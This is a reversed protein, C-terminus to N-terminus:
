LWQPTSGRYTIVFLLDDISGDSFLKRTTDDQPFQVEWTGFPAAGLMRQWATGSGSRTSIVGNIPTADGAGVMVPQNDKNQKTLKLHIPGLQLPTGDAPAVYLVLQQM